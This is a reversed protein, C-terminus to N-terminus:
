NNPYVLRETADVVVQGDALTVRVQKLALKEVRNAAYGIGSNSVSVAPDYANLDTLNTNVAAKLYGQGGFNGWTTSTGGTIEFQLTGSELAMTQTWRVTENPTAMQGAQPFKHSSVPTENNWIQLQMGGPTFAPQSQHNLEFAAYVADVDSTPSLACTVQPATSTPNPTAVVLEWDEEVRVVVLPEAASAHPPAAPCSLGLWGILLAACTRVRRCCRSM